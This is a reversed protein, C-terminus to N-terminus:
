LAIEHGEQPHASGADAEPPLRRKLEALALRTAEELARDPGFLVAGNADREWDFTGDRQRALGWRTEQVWAPDPAPEGDPVEQEVIQDGVQTRVTRTPQVWKSTDLHIAVVYDSGEQRAKLIKASM